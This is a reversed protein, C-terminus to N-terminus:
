GRMDAPDDPLYAPTIAVTYSAINRALVIGNRDYIIGRQPPLSIERTQNTVAQALWDSYEIVQLNFLRVVFIILVLAIIGYVVYYRWSAFRNPLSPTTM